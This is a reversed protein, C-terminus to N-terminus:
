GYLGGNIYTNIIENFENSHIYQYFPEIYAKQLLYAPSSCKIIDDITINYNFINNFILLLEDTNYQNTKIYKVLQIYKKYQPYLESEAIDQSIEDIDQNMIDLLISLIEFDALMRREAIFVGNWLLVGHLFRMLEFNNRYLNLFNIFSALNINQGNEIEKYFQKLIKLSHLCINIEEDSKAFNCYQMPLHLYRKEDSVAFIYLAYMQKDLSNDFYYFKIGIKNDLQKYYDLLQQNNCNQHIFIDQNYTNVYQINNFINPMIRGSISTAYEEIIDDNSASKYPLQLKMITNINRVSQIGQYLETLIREAAIDFIPFSGFNVRLLGLKKDIILSMLVPMQYNYSLDFIYLEYGLEQITEIITQLTYNEINELKIAHYIIDDINYMVANAVLRELLESCGQILAEDLTNGASMGNTRSVRRLLRPDMYIIDSNNINYMPVGIYIDDTIFNVTERVLEENHAALTNFYNYIRPQNLIEEYTLIREDKSFYYGNNKKNNNMFARIWLPNAIFNTKNCFREYLEAYGSALAYEKTVGKGNSDLIYINGKYLDIHCYWTGSESQDLTVQKITYKNKNFFNKIIQITEKPIREKYHTELNAM